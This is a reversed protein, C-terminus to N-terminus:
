KKYKENCQNLFINVKQLLKSVFECIGEKELITKIRKLNELETERKELSKIKTAIREKIKRESVGKFGHAIITKNRLDSLDELIELYTVIENLLTDNKSFYRVYGLLIKRNIEDSRIQEESPIKLNQKELFDRLKEDELLLLNEKDIKKYIKMLVEEHLRFLRGLFDVYDGMKWKHRMNELLIDLLTKWDGKELENLRELEKKAENSGKRCAEEFHKRAEEFNFLYMQHKGLLYESEMESEDGETKFKRILEAALKPNLEKLKEAEERKIWKFMKDGISNSQCAGVRPKYLTWVKNEWLAVSWLLLATNQAQTGGTLSVYVKEINEDDLRKCQNRFFDFMKGYDSPDDEITKVEIEVKDEFIEELLTKVIYAIYITDQRHPKIQRTGFLIIKITNQEIRTIEEVIEKLLLPVLGEFNGSELIRKSEEFVNVERPNFLPKDEGEKGLDSNGINALLLLRSM